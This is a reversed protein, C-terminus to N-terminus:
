KARYSPKQKTMFATVSEAIDEEDLFSTNYYAIQDLSESTSHNEAFRLSIKTGQVARPSNAAIKEALKRGQELLADPNAYVANVLGMKEAMKADFREGTFAAQRALGKSVVNELRQLTGIDAVIGLKTEQIAFKADETCLRIDAATILDIAGGICYGHILAIVPKNSNEAMSLSNQWRKIVGFLHGSRSTRSADSDGALNNGKLDLGASFM